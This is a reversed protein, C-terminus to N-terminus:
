VINLYFFILDILNDSFDVLINHQNQYDERHEAFWDRNNHKAIDKLFKFSSKQIQTM